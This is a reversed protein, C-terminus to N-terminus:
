TGPTTDGSPAGTTTSANKACATAKVGLAEGAPSLKPSGNPGAAVILQADAETLQAVVAKFCAEDLTVGSKAASAIGDSVVKTQTPTLAGTAAAGSGAAGTGETTTASASSTTAASSGCSAAALMLGIAFTGTMLKKMAFKERAKAATRTERSCSPALGSQQGSTRPQLVDGHRGTPRSRSDMIDANRLIEVGGDTVRLGVAGPRSPPLAESVTRLRLGLSRAKSTDLILIGPRDLGSEALSSFRLRHEDLGLKRAIASAFQARTLAQSGALHLVGTVGHDDALRCIAAAIDGAHAPCRSEDTFFAMPHTGAIARQVDTQCYGLRDTGYMLSPRVILALPCAALVRADAEAKWRGYDTTADARDSEVYPGSCKCFVMDTSVHILRAGVQAAAVAM